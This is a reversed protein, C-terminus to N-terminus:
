ERYSMRKLMSLYREIEKVFLEPQFAECIFQETMLGSVTLEIIKTLKDLEVEPKFRGLDARGMIQNFHQPLVSRKEETAVLAESVDEKKSENLFQLMYPYNRMVQLECNKMQLILKGFSYEM